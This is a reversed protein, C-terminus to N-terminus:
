KNSQRNKKNRLNYFSILLLIVPLVWKFYDTIMEFYYIKGNIGRIPDVMKNDDSSGYFEEMPLQVGAPITKYIPDYYNNIIRTNNEIAELSLPILIGYDADSIYWKGNQDKVTAVVHGFLHVVKSTYGNNNLAIFVIKAHQSCLGRGKNLIRKIDLNENFYQTEPEFIDYAWMFYNDWFATGISNGHIIYNNIQNTLRGFYEEDTESDLKNLDEEELQDLVRDENGMGWNNKMPVKYEGIFFGYINASM